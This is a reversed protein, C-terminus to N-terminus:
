GTTVYLHLGELIGPGIGDVRLLDDVCAFAGHEQRYDIIARARGSGIGPLRALDAASATNINIVEGELLSDPRPDEQAPGSREPSDSRQVEVWWTDRAQKQDALFLGSMFLLALATLVLVARDFRM